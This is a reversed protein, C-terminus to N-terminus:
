PYSVTKPCKPCRSSSTMTTPRCPSAAPRGIRRPRTSGTAARPSSTGSSTARATSRRAAASCSTAAADGLALHRPHRPAARLADLARAAPRRARGRGRRCLARARGGRPRDADRRRARSPHRCLHDPQPLHGALDRGVASGMVVRARPATARSWRCIRGQRCARLGPRDGGQRDPLALWTQIGSLEPGDPACRPPRASAFPHHRQGATM